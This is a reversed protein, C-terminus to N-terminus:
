KKYKNFKNIADYLEKVTNEAQSESRGNKMFEKKFMDDYKQKTEPDINKVKQGNLRDMAYHRTAMAKRRSGMERELQYVAAFEDMDTIDNNVYDKAHSEMIEQARKRDINLKDQLKNLNEENKKFDKLYKEQQKRGYDSGQYGKKGEELAKKMLDKQNKVKATARDGLSSGVKYGGVGAAFINGVQKSPDGSVIAALGAATTFATASAVGGALRVGRRLIGGNQARRASYRKQLGSGYGRLTRGLGKRLRQRRTLPLSTQSGGQLNSRQGQTPITNPTTMDGMSFDSANYGFQNNYDLMQYNEESPVFTDNSTSELNEDNNGLIQFNGEDPSFMDNSTGWLNSSGEEDGNGEGLFGETEDIKETRPAKGDEEKSDDGEGKGNGLGKPPKPHMLHQLGSFMLASGAAGGFMGPTQAKEFGFFRRMLKEAPVFFGLAMVVYILNDSAFNMAAGILVSYLILHLPQILLNFIYEKFWMDFAQAKGDNMKDIPYTVAVLPAIVTLFAMYVVRKMYTFLFIITYIVLIVYILGYGYMSVTDDGNNRKIQYRIRAEEMFNQAPWVLVKAEDKSTAKGSLSTDKYFFDRLKSGEMTEYASQVMKKMDNDSSGDLIYIEVAEGLKIDEENIEDEGGFDGGGHSTGGDTNSNSGYNNRNYNGLDELVATKTETEIQISDIMDRIRDVIYVSFSMIYHMVFLLSIAVAWDMLMQKYKAKDSAVSSLIIRIGIYVLISLLAVLALNRLTRYWGAIYTRLGAAPSKLKITQQEQQMFDCVERTSIGNEEQKDKISAIYHINGSYWTYITGKYTFIHAETFISDGTNRGLEQQNNGSKGFNFANDFEEQKVKFTRDDIKEIVMSTPISVPIAHEINKVVDEEQKPDFFNVDLVTIKNDFIEYPSLAYQPFFFQNGISKSILTTVTSGFMAYSGLSIAVIAGVKVMIAVWAVVTTGGSYVAGVIAIATGVIFAGIVLVNAWFDAGNDKIEILSEDVGLVVKQAVGELADALGVFLGTIPKLLIDASVAHVPKIFIANLVIIVLFVILLKQWLKKNLLKEM